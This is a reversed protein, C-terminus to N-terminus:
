EGFVERVRHLGRVLADIDERTNYIALSARITAPICYRDMVPQACHQGTRVAIGQQDLITGADHPHAGELLFSLVGTKARAEGVIRVGAIAGVQATAYALVDDEHALAAEREIAMLYDIAAGFAEVGAINPRGDEFKYV